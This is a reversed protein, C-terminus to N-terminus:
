DKSIILSSLSRSAWNNPFTKGILSKRYTWEEGGDGLSPAFLSRFQQGNRPSISQFKLLHTHTQQMPQTNSYHTNYNTRNPKERYAHYNAKSCNRFVTKCRFTKSRQGRVTEFSKRNTNALLTTFYKWSFYHFDTTYWPIPLWLHPHLFYHTDIM